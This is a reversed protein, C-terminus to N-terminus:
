EQGKLAERAFRLSTPNIRERAAHRAMIRKAWAKHDIKSEAKFNAKAVSLEAIAKNLRDPDAKPEPLKPLEKAPAKRCIDRFQLVTPPKDPPMNQLAFKIAEPWREFGALEHAWDTKVDAISLGRWRDMFDRGYVITLKEFIRDIWEIPVSM